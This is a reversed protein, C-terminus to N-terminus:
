SFQLHMTFAKPRKSRDRRLKRSDATMHVKTEKKENYENRAQPM